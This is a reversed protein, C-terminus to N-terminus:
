AMKQKLKLNRFHHRTRSYLRWLKFLSQECASSKGEGIKSPAQITVVSWIVANHLTFVVGVGVFVVLLRLLM